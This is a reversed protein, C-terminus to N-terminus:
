NAHVGNIGLVSRAFDCDKRIQEKLEPLGAFKQEDRIRRLFSIRLSKGYLDGQFGLLHAEVRLDQGNVTPRLGVNAVGFWNQGRNTQEDVVEAAVAYVGYGPLVYEEINGLNATPFGITRGLKNGHVVEGSIRYARGLLAEAAEVRGAALHARIQSSSVKMGNEEVQEAMTVPVGMRACLDTLESVGAKGGQGFRFDAGVIIRRLNLRNLHEFVFTEATTSAYEPTFHVLYLRNVGFQALLQKKDPLPTLVQQYERKKALVFVPHPTFSLVSLEDAGSYRKAADIIAQHGIHIGDFKGIALIQEKQSEPPLGIVDITEM